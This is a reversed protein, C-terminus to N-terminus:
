FPLRLLMQERVKRVASFERGLILGVFIWLPYITFIQLMVNGSMFFTALISFCFVGRVLGSGKAMQFLAKYPYLLIAIFLVIGPFGMTSLIYFFGNHPNDNPHFIGKYPVHHEYYAFEWNPYGVGLIPNSVAMEVSTLIHSWRVDVSSVEETTDGYGSQKFKGEFLSALNEYFITILAILLFSSIVLIIKKHKASNKLLIFGIFASFSAMLMMLWAGKSFTNLSIFALVALALIVWGRPKEITTISLIVAAMAVMNGTVNPHSVMYIGTDGFKNTSGLHENWGMVTFFYNLVTSFLVGAVFCYAVYKFSYRSCLYAVFIVLLCFYITRFIAFISGFRAGYNFSNFFLSAIGWFVFLIVLFFLLQYRVVFEYVFQRFHPFYFNSLFCFLFLFDAFQVGHFILFSASSTPLLQSTGFLFLFTSYCITAFSFKRIVV